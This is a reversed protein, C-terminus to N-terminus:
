STAAKTKLVRRKGVLAQFGKNVTQVSRTAQCKECQVFYLRNEKTLTTDLSKCGTCVVYETIYRKLVGEIGRQVFRGKIILRLNGDISGTTGLEAMLFNMVHEPSRHLTKCIDHFNTFTTKKSGERAVQPPKMLRTQFSGHEPNNARLLDFIRTVLEDYEYDRDEDGAKWAFEAGDGGEVGGDGGEELNLDKVVKKKKKKKAPLAALFDGAVVADAAAAPEAEDAGEEEKDKKKKKKKTKGAFM